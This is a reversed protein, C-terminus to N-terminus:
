AAASSIAVAVGVFVGVAVLVGVGVFVGVFVGVAVFVAVGVLVGVAPLVPKRLGLALAASVLLAPSLMVTVLLEGVPGTMPTPGDGSLMVTGAVVPVM